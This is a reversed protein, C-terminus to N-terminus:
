FERRMDRKAKQRAASNGTKSTGSRHKSFRSVCCSCRSLRVLDKYMPKM